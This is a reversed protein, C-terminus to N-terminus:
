GVVQVAEKLPEALELTQKTRATQLLDPLDCHEKWLDGEWNLTSVGAPCGGHVGSV